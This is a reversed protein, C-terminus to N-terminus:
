LLDIPALSSGSRSPIARALIACNRNAAAKPPLSINGAGAARFLVYSSQSTADGRQRDPFSRANCHRFEAFPLL